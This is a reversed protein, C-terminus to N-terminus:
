AGYLSSYDTGSTDGYTNKYQEIIQRARQLKQLKVADNDFPQPVYSQGIRRAEDEKINAGSMMYGIQTALSNATQDYSNGGINAIGGLIPVDRMAYAVKTGNDNGNVIAELEDLSNEAAYARRQTDTLKNQTASTSGSSKQLNALSDQYMNYLEAFLAVDNDEISQNLARGIVDTWYDGTEPIYTAGSSTSGTAPAGVGNANYMTNYLATNPRAYPEVQTLFSELNADKNTQATNIADITNQKKEANRQEKGQLSGETRGLANYLQTRPDYQAPEINAEPATTRASPNRPTGDGGDIRNAVENVAGGAKALLANVPRQAVTGAFQKLGAGFGRGMQVAAGNEARASLTAVKSADVFDKKFSRYAKITRPEADLKDALTNYAREIDKNGNQAAQNARGRMESITADFMADVNEKPIANYSLDDLESAIDMYIKAKAADIPKPDVVGRGRLDAAIAKMRNSTSLVDGEFSSIDQKLNSIFKSRNNQSGFTNTDAYKDVISDVKDLVPTTDVKFGKGDDSATLAQRQINDMLSDAGGTLEKALKGQTELNTIGTKKRVNEIVKGVSEIGLDKAAARTINSQAGELTNGFRELADATMGRKTRNGLQSEGYMLDNINSQKQPQLTRAVLTEPSNDVASTTPKSNRDQYSMFESEPIGAAEALRVDGLEMIEPAYSQLEALEEYSIRENDLENRLYDLRSQVDNGGTEAMNNNIRMNQVDEPLLNVNQRGQPIISGITTDDTASVPSTGTSSVNTYRADRSVPNNAEYATAVWQKKNGDWDLRVLSNDNDKQVFLRDKIDDRLYVDGNELVDPLRKLIDVGHKEKIHALGYGDDGTKGYVFDINGDGTIDGVKSSYVAGEVEGGKRKLLYDISKAGDGSFQNYRRGFGKDSKSRIDNVRDSLWSTRGEGPNNIRKTSLGVGKNNLDDLARSGAQKLWDKATTPTQQNNQYDLAAQKAKLATEYNEALGPVYVDEGAGQTRLSTPEYEGGYEQYADIIAKARDGDFEGLRYGSPDYTNGNEFYIAREGNENVTRNVNLGQMYDLFDDPNSSELTDHWKNVVQEDLRPVMNDMENNVQKTSLGVGKNNLDDLARNGAKKLWGGLTTPTQQGGLEDAVGSALREVKAQSDAYKNRLDLQANYGDMFASAEDLSLQKAMGNPLGEYLPEKTISDVVRYNGILKGDTGARTGWDSVKEIEAGNGTKALLARQEGAQFSDAQPKTDFEFTRSDGSGAEPAFVFKEGSKFMVPAVMGSADASEAWKRGWIDNAGGVDQVKNGLSGATNLLKSQSRGQVWDVFSNGAPSKGSTLTNTLREDFNRGSNTWDQAAENIKQMPKTKGLAMNAGSMAGGLLAGEGAGQTAGQLVGQLVDQGNALASLGGGTAGGVAGSIAGRGAGTAITSGVRGAATNSGLNNLGRTLANNGKFLNGGRKALANSMGSNMKGVVAGTTAGIAANQLAREANFDELGSEELEDAIGEIGGQVSNAVAGAAPAMIDFGTSLTNIASGAFRGRDQNIKQSFYSNDAYDAYDSAKKNAKAANSSATSQLEPNIVNDIMDLTTKDGESEAKDRADWVDQYSNYGYKKAVDDMRSKNRGLLQATAINEGADTAFAAPASLTTGLANEVSRVRKGLFGGLNNERFADSKERQKKARTNSSANSSSNNNLADYIRTQASSATIRNATTGRKTNKRKDENRM